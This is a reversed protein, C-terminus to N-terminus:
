SATSRLWRSIPMWFTPTAASIASCPPLRRRLRGALAYAAGVSALHDDAVVPKLRLAQAAAELAEETRGVCSLVEALAAYSVAENPALAM